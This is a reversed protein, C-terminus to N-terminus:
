KLCVGSDRPYDRKNILESSSVNKCTSFLSFSIWGDMWGDMWGDENYM